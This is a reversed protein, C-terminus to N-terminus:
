LAYDKTACMDCLCVVLIALTAFNCSFMCHYLSLTRPDTLPCEQWCFAMYYEREVGAGGEEEGRGGVCVGVGLDQHQHKDAQQSFKCTNLFEKGKQVLKYVKIM